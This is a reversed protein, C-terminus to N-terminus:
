MNGLLKELGSIIVEKEKVSCNGYVRNLVIQSIAEFDPKLQRGKETLSVVTVRSDRDDAATEVYGHVILKKVLATVTSKDRGISQALERMTSREKGFLFVLIDGHSPALGNVNRDRLEKTILANAKTRIKSVLSIIHDTKV